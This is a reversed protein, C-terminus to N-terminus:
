SKKALAESWKIFTPFHEQLFKETDLEAEYSLSVFPPLLSLAGKLKAAADTGPKSV